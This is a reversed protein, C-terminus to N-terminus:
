IEGRKKAKKKWKEIEEHTPLDFDNPPFYSNPWDDDGFENIELKRDQMCDNLKKIGDSATNEFWFPFVAHIIFIIATFVLRIGVSVAFQCHQWWTENANKIPHITFLNKM